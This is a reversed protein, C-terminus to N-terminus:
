YIKIKWHFQDENESLKSYALAIKREDSDCILYAKGGSFSSLTKSKKQDALYVLDPNYFDFMEIIKTWIENESAVRNLLFDGMHKEQAYNKTRDQFRSQSEKLLKPPSDLYQDTRDFLRQNFQIPDILGPEIKRRIYERLKQDSLGAAAILGLPGLLLGAITWSGFGHGKDSAVVGTTVGTLIWLSVILIRM